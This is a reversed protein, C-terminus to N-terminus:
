SFNTLHSASIYNPKQFGSQVKEEGGQRKQENEMALLDGEETNPSGLM